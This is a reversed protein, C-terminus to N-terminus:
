PEPNDLLEITVFEHHAQVDESFGCYEPLSLRRMLRYPLSSLGDNQSMLHASPRAVCITGPDNRHFIWPHVPGDGKLPLVARNLIRDHRVYNADAPAARPHPLSRYKGSLRQIPVGALWFRMFLDDDEGDWGWYGNSFGNITEFAVVTTILVGGLYNAYPLRYEFQEAAGALHCVAPPRRYDCSEDLPLMDVDHFAVFAPRNRALLFGANLLAGRNFPKEDGQEVIILTFEHGDLFREMHPVFTQLHALRDRYPVVIIFPHRTTEVTVM